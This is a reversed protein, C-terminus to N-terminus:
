NNYINVIKTDDLALFSSEGFQGETICYMWKKILLEQVFSMLSSTTIGSEGLLHHLSSFSVSAVWHHFTNSSFVSPAQLVFCLIGVTQLSSLNNEVDFYIFM